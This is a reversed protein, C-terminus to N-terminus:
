SQFSHIRSANSPMLANFCEVINFTPKAHWTKTTTAKAGYGQTEVIIVHQRVGILNGFAGSGSM